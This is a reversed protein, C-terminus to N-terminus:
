AKAHARVEVDLGVDGKPDNDLPARGARDTTLGRCPTRSSSSTRGVPPTELGVLTAASSLQSIGRRASRARSDRTLYSCRTRGSCSASAPQHGVDQAGPRIACRSSRSPWRSRGATRSDRRRARGLRTNWDRNMDREDTITCTACGASRTSRSCFGNRRDHFTDFVVAFNENDDIDATTAGCRTPSRASPIRTGAARRSMSTTTTSSCGRSRDERDGAAGEHPEQQIFGTIAPIHRIPTKTWIDTSSSRNPFAPPECRSRATTTASSSRLRHHFRSPTTKRQRQPAQQAWAHQAPMAMSALTLIWSSLPFLGASRVKLHSM